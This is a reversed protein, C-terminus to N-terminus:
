TALKKVYKVFNKAVNSKHKDYYEKISKSLILEVCIWPPAAVSLPLHSMSSSPEDGRVSRVQVSCEYSPM